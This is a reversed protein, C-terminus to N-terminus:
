ALSFKDVRCSLDGELFLYSIQTTFTFLLFIGTIINVKFYNVRIKQKPTWNQQKKTDEIYRQM